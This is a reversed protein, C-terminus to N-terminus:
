KNIFICVSVHHEEAWIGTRLIGGELVYRETVVWTKKGFEGLMCGYTSNRQLGFCLWALNRTHGFHFPLQFPDSNKHTFQANLWM